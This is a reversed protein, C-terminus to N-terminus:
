LEAANYIRLFVYRQEIRALSRQPGRLVLGWPRVFAFQILVFERAVFQGCTLTEGAAFRCSVPFRRPAM